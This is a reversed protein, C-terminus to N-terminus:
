RTGFFSIILCSFQNTNKVNLRLGRLPLGSSLTPRLAVPRFEANGACPLLAASCICCRINAPDEETFIAFWILLQQTKM